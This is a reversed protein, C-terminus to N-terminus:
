GVLNALFFADSGLLLHLPANKEESARLIAQAIKAPDGRMMADGRMSTFLARVGQYEPRSELVRM